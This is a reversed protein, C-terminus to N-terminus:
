SIEKHKFIIPYLFIGVLIGLIVYFRFEGWNVKLLILFGLLGTMIGFMFDLLNAIVSINKIWERIYLYYIHYLGALSFGFLIMYVFTIFQKFLFDMIDGWSNYYAVLSSITNSNKVKKLM